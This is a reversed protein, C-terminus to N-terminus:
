IWCRLQTYMNRNGYVHVKNRESNFMFIYYELMDLKSKEHIWLDKSRMCKTLDGFRHRILNEQMAEPHYKSKAFIYKIGIDQVQVNM